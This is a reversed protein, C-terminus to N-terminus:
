QALQRVVADQWTQPLKIENLGRQLLGIDVKKTTMYDILPEYREPRNRWLETVLRLELAVTPVSHQGWPLKTYNKWPGTGRTEMGDSSAPSEHVCVQVHIDDVFYSAWYLKVEPQYIPPSDVRFASMVLHMADVNERDIMLLDISRAPTAAGHLVTAATGVLRYKEPSLVYESADLIKKLVGLLRNHEVPPLDDLCVEREIQSQM